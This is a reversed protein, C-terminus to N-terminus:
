IPFIYRTSIIAARPRAMVRGDEERTRACVAYAECEKFTGTKMFAGKEPWYGNFTVYLNTLGLHKGLAESKYTVPAGSGELTRCIPLWDAYKYIGPLDNRVELQRKAYKAFILAAGDKRPCDLEWRKDEFTAGCCASELQYSTM